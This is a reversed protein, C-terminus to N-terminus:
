NDALWIGQDLNNIYIAFLASESWIAELQDPDVNNAFVPYIRTWCSM